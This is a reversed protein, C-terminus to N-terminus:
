HITRADARKEAALSAVYTEYIRRFFATLLSAILSWGCPTFLSGDVSFFSDAILWFHKSNGTAQKSSSLWCSETTLSFGGASLLSYVTFAM